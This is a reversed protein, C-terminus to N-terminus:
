KTYHWRSFNQNNDTGDTIFTHNPYAHKIRLLFIEKDFIAKEEIITVFWEDILNNYARFLSEGGAIFIDKDPNEETIKAIVEEPTGNITKVTDSTEFETNNTLVYTTSGRLHKHALFAGSGVLVINDGVRSSFNDEEFYLRPWPYNSEIGIGGLETCTVIAITTM